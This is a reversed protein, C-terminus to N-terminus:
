TCPSGCTRSTSAPLTPRTRTPASPMSGDPRVEHVRPAARRPAPHRLLDVAYPPIILNLQTAPDKAGEILNAKFFDLEGNMIVERSNSLLLAIGQFTIMGGLTIIFPEVKTRSIIWGMLTELM